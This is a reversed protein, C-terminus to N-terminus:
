IGSNLVQSTVRKRYSTMWGHEWPLGCEHSCKHYLGIGAKDRRCPSSRTILPKLKTTRSETQKGLKTKPQNSQQVQYHSTSVSFSGCCFVNRQFVNEWTSDKWCYKLYYTSLITTRISVFISSDTHFGSTSICVVSSPPQPKKIHKRYSLQIIEVGRFWLKSRRM